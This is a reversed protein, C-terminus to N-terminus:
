LMEILIVACEFLYVLIIPLLFLMIFKAYYIRKCLSLRFPNYRLNQGEDLATSEKLHKYYEKEYVGDVISTSMGNVLFFLLTLIFGFVTFLIFIIKQLFMNELFTPLFWLICTLVLNLTLICVTKKVSLYKM